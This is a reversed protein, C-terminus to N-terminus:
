RVKKPECIELNELIGLSQQTAVGIDYPESLVWDRYYKCV